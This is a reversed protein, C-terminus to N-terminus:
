HFLVECDNANLPAVFSFSLDDIDKRRLVVADRPVLAAMIGTVGNVNAIAAVHKMQNRRSNKMGIHLTNDAAAHNQIWESQNFFGVRDLFRHRNGQRAPEKYGVSAVQYKGIV